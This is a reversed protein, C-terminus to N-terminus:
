DSTHEESRQKGSPRVSGQVNLNAIVATRQTYCFLGTYSVADRVSLGKIEHGQGDFYGGFTPISVFGSGALDLDETLYVKKDWSWTDLWCNRSFAKLDEVSDIYIEEWETEEDSYSELTENADEVTIVEEIVEEETETEESKENDEEALVEMVPMFLLMVALLFSTVRKKCM